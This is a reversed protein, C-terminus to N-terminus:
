AGLIQSVYVFKAILTLNYIPEFKVIQSFEQEKIGFEEINEM